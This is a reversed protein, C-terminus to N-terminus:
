CRHCMEEKDAPLDHHKNANLETLMTVTDPFMNGQDYESDIAIADPSYGLLLGLLRDLHPQPANNMIWAFTEAVWGRMAVGIDVIKKDKRLFGVPM